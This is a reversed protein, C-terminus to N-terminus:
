VVTNPTDYGLIEMTPGFERFARKIQKDTLIEKWTGMKAPGIFNNKDLKRMEKVDSAEIAETLERDNFQEESIIPRLQKFPERKLDEYRVISIPINQSNAELWGMVNSEWDQAGITKFGPDGKYQIFTDIYESLEFNKGDIVTRHRYSSLCVDFPHRVMYIGATFKNDLLDKSAHVHGRIWGYKCRRPWLYAQDWNPIVDMLDDLETFEEEKPKLLQALIFCM